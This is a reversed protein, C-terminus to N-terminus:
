AADLLKKCSTESTRLAALVATGDIQTGLADLRQAAAHASERCLRCAALVLSPPEDILEILVRSVAAPAVLAAVVERRLEDDELSRAQELLVECAEACARADVLCQALEDAVSTFWADEM